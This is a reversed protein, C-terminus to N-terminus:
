KGRLDADEACRLCRDPSQADIEFSACSSRVSQRLGLRSTATVGASDRRVSIYRKFDGSLSLIKSDFNPGSEGV